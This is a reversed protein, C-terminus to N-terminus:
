ESENMDVSDKSVIVEENFVVQKKTAKKGEDKETKLVPSLHKIASNDAATNEKIKRYKQFM